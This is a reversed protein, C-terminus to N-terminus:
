GAHAARLRRRAEAFRLAEYAILAVCLAALLGLAALAPATAAVPLLAVVVAATVLRQRNLTRMNRLRFAVHALLYLAVGGYLAVAGVGHLPDGVHAITKKVGLAFLVIGAVMPFHLYSYADRALRSREGGTARTLRREAAIAVVDFYAWWMAAVVALALLAAVVVGADVDLGAAGVGIAVISEGLAIIMILGHREAFHGASIRYGENGALLPSGFDLLLALAWVAGQPVGDLFAAGVLLASSFLLFPALRAFAAHVEPDGRSAILFLGVQIARVAFYAVGFVLADDGFADPVALSAVLMAGMATFLMLRPVDEDTPVENTLWAYGVWAWWLAALVLVGRALNAWSVDEALLLTVQTLAFVFVLDFFLELVTVRPEPAAPAAGEPVAAGDGSV